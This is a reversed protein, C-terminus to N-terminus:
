SSFPLGVFAAIPNARPCCISASFKIFSPSYVQASTTFLPCVTSVMKGSINVDSMVPRLKVRLMRQPVSSACKMRGMRQITANAPFFIIGISNAWTFLPRMLRPWRKRQLSVTSIVAGSSYLSIMRWAKTM